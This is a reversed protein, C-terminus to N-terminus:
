NCRVIADDWEMRWNWGVTGDDLEMGWNMRWNWGSIGDELQMDWEMGMQM